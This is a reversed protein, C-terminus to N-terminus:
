ADAAHEDIRRLRQPRTRFERHSNSQGIVMLRYYGNTIDALSFTQRSLKPRWEPVSEIYRIVAESTVQQDTSLLEEAAMHVTTWRELTEDKFTKFNEVVEAAAKLDIYSPAYGLAEEINPGPEFGTDGKSVLWQRQRVAIDEPGKYRLNPDYPGAAQKRFETFLGAKTRAEILYLMKGMRFRSVPYGPTYLQHVLWAFVTAQQFEPSARRRDGGETAYIAAEEAARAM